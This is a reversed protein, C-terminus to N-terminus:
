YMPFSPDIEEVWSNLGGKINYINGILKSQVLIRTAEASAIGRRCLCYIPKSGNDTLGELKDIQEELAGLPVNMSGKLTCLEYQQQVRVDLLIHPTNDKRVKYYDKCSINMEAPLSKNPSIGCDQPGRASASASKSDSISSISPEPGCVACNKRRKGKKISLFSCRLSDYMLLRDHMTTGTDTLLKLVEIAQLIGILGPVPGLVGNDSCSKGGEAPNVRPYLCRYCASDKYGYLTVQGESGMASGSVLPKNNLICADNVLYRTKPNDCADVVCDHKSVLEMANDFTLMDTVPSCNITPNLRKMANCASIAKNMGVGENSHIVQRHLNSMEVNDFDVVTINGVGSSALYLLLSSGIGGAGIVLVSSALLQQQGRVGWGDNLLLQRSYRAVQDATLSSVRSNIIEDDCEDAHDASSTTPDIDTAITKTKTKTKTKSEDKERKMASIKKELDHIRAAYKHELGKRQAEMDNEWRRNNQSLQEDKEKLKQELDRIRHLFKKNANSGFAVNESEQPASSINLNNINAEDVDVNHTNDGVKVKLLESLTQEDQSLLHFASKSLGRFRSGIPKSSNTNTANSKPNNFTSTHNSNHLNSGSGIDTKAGHVYMSEDDTSEDIAVSVHSLDQSFNAESIDDSAMGQTSSADNRGSM